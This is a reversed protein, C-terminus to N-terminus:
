KALHSLVSKSIKTKLVINDPDLNLATEYSEKADVDNNMKVYLDGLSEYLSFNKPDKAIEIILNQEEKKLDEFSNTRTDEEIITTVFEDDNIVKSNSNNSHTTRIRSILSVTLQDIRLFVLRIKRVLKELEILANAQYERIKSIEIKDIVEPFFEALVGRTGLDHVDPTLKKLYQNKRMIVVFIGSIAGLFLLLPISIYV